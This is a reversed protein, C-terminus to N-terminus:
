QRLGPTELSVLPPAEGLAGQQQGVWQTTGQLTAAIEAIRENVQQPATAVALQDRLLKVQEEIRTLESEVFATKSKAEGLAAQRQTLIERQAQLSAKVDEALAADALKADLAALQQTVGSDGGTADISGRLAQRATLLQLYVGALKALEERHMDVLGPSVAAIRGLMAECNRKLERYSRQADGKLSMLTDAESQRAKSQADRADIWRQFRPTGAIALLLAAEAGAAIPWYLGPMLFVRGAVVLGGLLMLNWPNWFAAWLYRALKM